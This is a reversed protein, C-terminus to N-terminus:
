AKGNRNRTRDDTKWMEEILKNRLKQFYEDVKLMTTFSLENTTVTFIYTNIDNVLEIVEKHTM